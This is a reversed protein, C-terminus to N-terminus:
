NFIADLARHKIPAARLTIIPEAETEQRCTTSRLEEAQLSCSELLRILHCVDIQKSM